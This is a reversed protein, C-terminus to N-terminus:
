ATAPSLLVVRAWQTGLSADNRWRDLSALARCAVLGHLTRLGPRQGVGRLCLRAVTRRAVSTAIGRTGAHRRGRPGVVRASRVRACIHRATRRHREHLVAHSRGAIAGAGWLKGDHGPARPAAAVRKRAGSPVSPRGPSRGRRLAVLAGDSSFVPDNAVTGPISVHNLAGTRLDREQVDWTGRNVVAAAHAGDPSVAIERAQGVWTSDVITSTGDRRVRAFRVRAASAGGSAFVLQGTAAVAIQAFSNTLINVGSALVIPSGTTKRTTADFPVAVLASDPQVVLLYGPEVYRAWFGPVLM